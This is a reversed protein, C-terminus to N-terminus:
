PKAGFIEKARPLFSLLRFWHVDNSFNDNIPHANKWDVRVKHIGLHRALWSKRQYLPKKKELKLDIESEPLQMKYTFEYLFVEEAPLAGGKAVSGSDAEVSSQQAHIVRFTAIFFVVIIFIKKMREIFSKKESITVVSRHVTLLCLFRAKKIKVVKAGKGGIGIIMFFIARSSASTHQTDSECAWARLVGAGLGVWVSLCSKAREERSIVYERGLM